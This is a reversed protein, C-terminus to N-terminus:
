VWSNRLFRRTKTTKPGETYKSPMIRQTHTAGSVARECGVSTLQSPRPKSPPQFPRPVKLFCAYLEKTAIATGHLLCHVLLRVHEDALKAAMVLDGGKV